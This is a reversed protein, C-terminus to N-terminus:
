IITQNKRQHTLNHTPCNGMATVYKTSDTILSHRIALWTSDCNGSSYLIIISVPPTADSVVVDRSPESSRPHTELVLAAITPATTIRFAKGNEIYTHIYTGADNMIGYM